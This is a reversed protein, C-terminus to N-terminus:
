EHLDSYLWGVPDQRSASNIEAIRKGSVSMLANQTLKLAPAIDEPRGHTKRVHDLGDKMM